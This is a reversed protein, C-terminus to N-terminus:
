LGLYYVPFVIKAAPLVFGFSDFMMALLLPLHMPYLTTNTGWSSMGALGDNILGLAKAGWLVISDTEYFGSGVSLVAQTFGLGLIVIIWIDLGKSWTFLSKLQGIRYKDALFGWLLIAILLGTILYFIGALSWDLGLIMLTFCCISYVGALLGIGFAVKSWPTFSDAIWTGYFFGVVLIVLISFIPLLVGRFLGKSGPIDGEGLREPLGYVGWTDNYMRYDAPDEKVESGPFRDLGMILIFTNEKGIFAAGCDLDLCNYVKRPALFFQMTPTDSLAWSSVQEPPIIVRGDEPIEQRLFKIYEAFNESFAFRASRWLGDERWTRMIGLAFSGMRPGIIALNILLVLSYFGAALIKRFSMPDKMIADNSNGEFLRGLCSV